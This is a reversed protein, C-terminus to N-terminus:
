GEIDITPPTLGVTNVPNGCCDYRQDGITVASPIPFKKDGERRFTERRADDLLKRRSRRLDPSIPLLEEVPKVVRRSIRVEAM